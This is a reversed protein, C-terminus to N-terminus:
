KGNGILRLFNMGAIKVVVDEDLLNFLEYIASYANDYGVDYGSDTSVMFRDPYENIVPVFDILRYNSGPNYATFGAFFDIYINSSHELLYEINSPSNYANAHAFIFKTGPFSDAAEMFKEVPLGTPPDIHLLVPRNYEACLAYIEPFYGDMPDNGKWPLVSAVPSNSSAAVVEGIGEVGADFRDRIYTLCGADFINIGAIFPIFRDRDNLYADYAIQDTTQASPESIDGFLVIKDIGYKDWIDTSERYRYGSADHNHIDIVTIDKYPLAIPDLPIMTDKNNCTILSVSALLLYVPKHKM